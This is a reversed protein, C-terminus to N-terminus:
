RGTPVVKLNALTSSTVVTIRRSAEKWNLSYWANDARTFGIRRDFNGGKMEGQVMVGVTSPVGIRLEGLAMDANIKVDHAVADGFDLSIGGLGGHISIEAVNANGVNELKLGGLGLDISMQEMVVPNPATFDLKVGALGSEVKLKMIKLGGLDMDAEVGGLELDLDMPVEPTLGVSMSGGKEGHMSKMARWGVNASRLGLQLRHEAADYEHMADMAQEDYRIRMQYLLRGEVPRLELHGAAYRITVALPETANLQRATEVTRWQQAGAVTPVLAALVVLIRNSYRM